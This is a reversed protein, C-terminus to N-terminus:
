RGKQGEEAVRADLRKRATAAYTRCAMPDIFPNSSPNQKLLALKGAMDIAAPHSALLVDCPLKEFKEIARRFAAVRAPQDTYRFGEDSVPNLSDGYVINLCRDGECSQWSWSMAGPTHGPTTHATISLPGVRLVEGDAIVKVKQVPPFPATGRQPDEPLPRGAALARAAAESTAVTAGSARQLAAVGGVHDYHEHCVVILRIGATRFGLSRINADILPASQPLAGDVLILGDNSTILVASLGAVGVYYTNGFIKFPQQPRNWEACESCDIPPDPRLASSGQAAALVPFIAFFVPIFQKTM